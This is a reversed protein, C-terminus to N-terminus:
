GALARLAQTGTRSAVLRTGDKLEVAYRGADWPVIAAVFELNVAHSRHIRVFTAPDLRPMLASLAVGLLHKRGRVVLAVYDDEAELREVERLAIPVLRQRERVFVRELPRGDSAALERLRAEPPPLDPPTGDAGERDDPAAPRAVAAALRAVAKAFRDAGFPKLLYDVAGLEFATVAHADFATTFVVAPRVTALELVRLGSMGPMRIDLFAAAPRLRQLLALAEDGSAAEGVLALGPHAAVLERLHLRAIPEDEAIIVRLPASTGTM